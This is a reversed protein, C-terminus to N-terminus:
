MREICLRVMRIRWAEPSIVSILCTSMWCILSEMLYSLFQTMTMYLTSIVPVFVNDPVVRTLILPTQSLCAIIVCPRDMVRRSVIRILVVMIGQTHATTVSVWLGHLAWGINRLAHHTNFVCVNECGRIWFMSSLQMVKVGEHKVSWVPLKVCSNWERDDHFHHFM